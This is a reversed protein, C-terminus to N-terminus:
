EESGGIKWNTLKDYLEYAYNSGRSLLIGTLITGIIGFKESIGLLKFFDLDANFAVLCGVLITCIIKLNVKKDTVIMDAYSVLGEIIISSAIFAMVDNM